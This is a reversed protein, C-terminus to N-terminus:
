LSTNGGRLQVFAMLDVLPYSDIVRNPTVIAQSALM